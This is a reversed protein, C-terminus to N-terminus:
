GRRMKLFAMIEIGLGVGLLLGLTFDGMVSHLEAPGITRLGLSLSVLLLGLAMWRRPTLPGM